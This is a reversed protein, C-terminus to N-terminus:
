KSKKISSKKIVAKKLTRQNPSISKIITEGKRWPKAEKVKGLSNAYAEKVLKKIYPKPFDKLDNVLFYRYQKGEGKLKKEPDAIENGWYFGFHINYNTRYAAISCFTYGLKETISWGIALANYNDYILENCYPYQDWIFDRLWLVTQQKEEPYVSLFKLLDKNQEKSM